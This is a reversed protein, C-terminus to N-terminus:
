FPRLGYPWAIKAYNKTLIVEKVTDPDVYKPIAAPKVQELRGKTVEELLDEPMTSFM